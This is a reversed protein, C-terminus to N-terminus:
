WRAGSAPRSEVIELLRDQWLTLARLKEARFEHTRYSRLAVTSRMDSSHHLVYSLVLSPVGMSLLADTIMDRAGHLEVDDPVNVARCLKRWANSLTEPYTGKSKDHQPFLFPSKGNDALAVTIIQLAADPLPVM